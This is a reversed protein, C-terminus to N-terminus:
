ATTPRVKPSSRFQRSRASFITPSRCCTAPLAPSPTARPTRSERATRRRLNEMEAAMRLRQDKLEEIEAMLLAAIPDINRAPNDAEVEPAADAQPKDHERGQSEDSMTHMDQRNFVITFTSPLNVRM